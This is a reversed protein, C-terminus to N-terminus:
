WLPEMTEALSTALADTLPLVDLPEDRALHSRAARGVAAVVNSPDAGSALAVGLTLHPRGPGGAEVRYAREVGESDALERRLAAVLAEPAEQPRRLEIATHERVELRM